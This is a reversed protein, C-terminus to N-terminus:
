VCCQAVTPLMQLGPLGLAEQDIGALLMNIAQAPALFPTSALQDSKLGLVTPRVDGPGGDFAPNQGGTAQELAEFQQFDGGVADVDAAAARGGGQPALDRCIDQTAVDPSDGDRFAGGEAGGYKRRSGDSQM